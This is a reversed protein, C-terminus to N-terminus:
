RGSAALVSHDCSAGRRDALTRRDLREHQALQAPRAAFRGHLAIRIRSLHQADHQPSCPDIGLRSTSQTSARDHREVLCAALRDFYENAFRKDGPAFQDHDVSLKTHLDGM